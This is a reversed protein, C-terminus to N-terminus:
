GSGGLWQWMWKKPLGMNLDYLEALLLGIESMKPGNSLGEGVAVAVWGCGCGVAV